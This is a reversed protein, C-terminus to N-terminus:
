IARATAAGIESDGGVLLFMTLERDPEPAASHRADPWKTRQKSSPVTAAIQTPMLGYIEFLDEQLGYKHPFADPLGIRMIPPLAPGLKEVLVDTVASGFGGIAVGEEVTM